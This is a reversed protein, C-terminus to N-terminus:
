NTQVLYEILPPYVVSSENEAALEYCVNEQNIKFARLVELYLYGKKYVETFHINSDIM